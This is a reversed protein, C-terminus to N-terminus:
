LLCVNCWWWHASWVVIKVLVILRVITFPSLLQEHPYCSDHVVYAKREHDSIRDKAKDVRWLCRQAGTVDHCRYEEQEKSGQENCYFESEARSEKVNLKKSASMALTDVQYKHTNEHEIISFRSIRDNCYQYKQNPKEVDHDRTHAIVSFWWLSWLPFLDCWILFLDLAMLFPPLLNVITGCICCSSSRWDLLILESFLLIRFLSVTFIVWCLSHLLATTM